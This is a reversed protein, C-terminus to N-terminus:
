CKRMKPVMWGPAAQKPNEKRVPATIHDEQVIVPPRRGTYGQVAGGTDHSTNTAFGGDMQM